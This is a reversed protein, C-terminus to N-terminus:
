MWRTFTPTEKTRRCLYLLSTSWYVAFFVNPLDGVTTKSDAEPGPLVTIDKVVGVWSSGAPHAREEM